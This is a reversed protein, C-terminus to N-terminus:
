AAHALADGGDRQGSREVLLEVRDRGRAEVRDLDELVVEDVERPRRGVKSVIAAVAAEADVEVLRKAVEFADDSSCNRRLRSRASRLNSMM